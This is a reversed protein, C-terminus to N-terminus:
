WDYAIHLAHGSGLVQHYRIAFGYHLHQKNRVIGAAFQANGFDFGSILEWESQIQFRIGTKFSPRFKNQWQVEGSVQIKPQILYNIAFLHSVHRNKDRLSSGPIGIQWASSYKPHPLVTLCLKFCTSNFHGYASVSEFQYETQIGALLKPHLSIALGTGLVCALYSPAFVARNYVALVSNKQPLQLLLDTQKVDSLFYPKQLGFSLSKTKPIHLSIHNIGSFSKGAFLQMGSLAIGEVGAPQLPIAARLDSIGFTLLVILFPM